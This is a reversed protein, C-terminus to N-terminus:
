RLIEKAVQSAVKGDYQGSYNEKLHKMVQGMNDADLEIIIAALEEETLQKPLYSELIQLEILAESHAVDGVKANKEVEELGKIFKKCKAMVLSDSVETIGTAKTETEIEGLLTTLLSAKIQMASNGRDKRAQMRESKIQNFLM